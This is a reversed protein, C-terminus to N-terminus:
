TNAMHGSDDPTHNPKAGCTRKGQGSPGELYEPPSESWHNAFGLGIEEKLAVVNM